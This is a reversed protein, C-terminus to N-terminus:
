AHPRGDWGKLAIGYLHQNGYYSPAGDREWRQLLLHVTDHGTPCLAIQNADTDAGGWSLPVIHHWHNRQTTPQHRTVCHCPADDPDVTRQQEGNM